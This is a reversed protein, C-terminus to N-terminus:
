QSTIGWWQAAWAAGSIVASYLGAGWRGFAAAFGGAIVGAAGFWPFYHDSAFCLLGLGLGTRAAWIGQRAKGSSEGTIPEMLIWLTLSLAIAGKITGTGSLFLPWGTVGTGFVAAAVVLAGVGLWCVIKGPEAEGGIPSPSMPRASGLDPPANEADEEASERSPITRGQMVAKRLSQWRGIVLWLGFLDVFTLVAIVGAFTLNLSVTQDPARLGFFGVFVMWIIWGAITLYLQAAQGFTMRPRKPPPPPRFGALPDLDKKKMSPSTM